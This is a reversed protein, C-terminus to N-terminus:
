GEFQHDTLARVDIGNKRAVYMLASKAEGFRRKEYLWKPSEPVYMMILVISAINQFVAYYEWYITYHSIFMFYITAWIM